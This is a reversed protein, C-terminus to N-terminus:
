HNLSFKFSVGFDQTTTPYSSSTLLPKNMQRNYYATLTLFRSITYDASFSIQLAENGSTAQTLLTAIDRNLAAQDRFSVDLRLNLAHAFSGSSSSTTTTSRPSNEDDEEGQGNRKRGKAKRERITKKPQGFKFDAVKYGLGIVFDNSRTENIQQNTMSLTLVRTKRYEVKATLNNHFTMDVGILPAFSENISVTSIDYPSSPVALGTQVDPIFGLGDMYEHWATFTNYSGVSFISKYGHNLNFSKFIRKMARLKALGGYSLNWNPLIRALSPFIDLSRKSGSTYASLFAPVMVDASYPSISTKTPDWLGQEAASAYQSEVRTRYAELSNVFRSFAKSPYGRDASGISEFASGISITTQNFSGTRITPMGEFM